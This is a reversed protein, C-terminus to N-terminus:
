DDVALWIERAHLLEELCRAARAQEYVAGLESFIERARELYSIAEEWERMESRLIAYETLTKAELLRYDKERAIELAKEFFTFGDHDGKARAINGLGRYMEALYYPSRAAIAHEEAERGYREAQLLHGEKLHLDA